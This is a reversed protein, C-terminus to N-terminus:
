WDTFWFPGPQLVIESSIELIFVPVIGILTGVFPIMSGITVIVFWFFSRWGWFDFLRDISCNRSRNSRTSNGPRQLSGHSQNGWRNKKKKKTSRCMIVSRIKILSRNTLLYFPHFVNIRHCYVSWFHRWGCKTPKPFGFSIAGVDIKFGFWIGAPIAM